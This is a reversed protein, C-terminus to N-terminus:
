RDEMYKNFEIRNRIYDNENYYDSAAVCLVSGENRWLMDRWLPRTIIVGKDPRDLEIDITNIGDSLRLMVNGFPCFLLQRLTKHAHGGRWVNQPVETIYYIRKIEFPIDQMGEFFQLAGMDPVIIKRISIIEFSNNIETM